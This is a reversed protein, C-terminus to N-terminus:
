NTAGFLRRVFRSALLPVAVRVIFITNTILYRRWLRRPETALRHLWELAAGRMWEPARAKVGAHYDFAAGVGILTAGIRVRQAAMWLEQKPCGLGVFVLGAGSSNIRGVCEAIEPETPPRFPPSFTGAILLNQFASQLRQRLLDLTANSGGYLYISIGRSQAHRCLEWMTDPGSIRYQQAYGLNRMAWAIPAGDPLTMDAGNIASLVEHNGSATVLAHVNCFCVYRSERTEAWTAIRGLAEAATAVDIRSGLLPATLRKLPLSTTMGAVAM